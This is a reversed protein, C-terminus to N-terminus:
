QVKHEWNSFTLVIATGILKALNHTRQIFMALVLVIKTLYKFNLSKFNIDVVVINRTITINFNFVFEMFYHPIVCKLKLINRCVSAM